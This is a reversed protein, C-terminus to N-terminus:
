KAETVTKMLLKVAAGKPKIYSKGFHELVTTIVDVSLKNIEKETWSGISAILKDVDVSAGAKSVTRDLDSMDVKRTTPTTSTAPAPVVPNVVVPEEVVVSDVVEAALEEVVEAVPEDVIEVIQGVGPLLPLDGFTDMALDFPAVDSQPETEVYDQLHINNAFDDSVIEVRASVLGGGGMPGAFFPLMQPPPARERSSEIFLRRELNLNDEKLKTISAELESIIIRLRSIEAVVRGDESELKNIVAKLRSIEEVVRADQFPDISAAPINAGAAVPVVKCKSPYLLRNPLGIGIEPINM